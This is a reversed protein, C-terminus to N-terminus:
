NPPPNFHTQAPDILKSGRRLIERVELSHQSQGDNLFRFLGSAGSFGTKTVFKAGDYQSGSKPRLIAALAVLDYVMTGLPHPKYGFTKIFRKSFGNDAHFPITAFWSGVLPPEAGTKNSTWGGLGLLQIRKTDVDFNGLQAGVNVLASDRAVVLLSDFPIKGLTELIELRGLARQSGDDGQKKLIAIQDLLSSRRENYNTLARIAQAIGEESLTYKEVRVLKTGVTTAAARTARIIRTGFQGIPALVALRKKGKKAAYEILRKIQAEPFLGALFIGREAVARNNSLALVKIGANQFVPAAGTVAESFIPGIALKVGAQTAKYAATAAGEKTSQTDFPMLVFKDTKKSFLGLSAADFLAKGLIANQGTLPLLLGV